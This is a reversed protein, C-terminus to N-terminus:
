VKKITQTPHIIYNWEGHFEAREINLTALADDTVKKGTEYLREDLHVTIHLGTTTTTHAILQVIEERSQLPRGRWNKAIQGFMRHEIKNWKSTGPPYHCVHLSLGFENAFTQLEYKWLRVRSGNSGGGDATILLAPVSAYLWCALSKWWCRLSNVAFEATDSSGGLNVFGAHHQLDYIGYPVAKGLNKDVFDYVNVEPAHGSPSYERGGNTFNGIKEKKKADVSIIPWGQGQFVQIHQQIYEFQADRDPHQRGEKTKRPAQLSYKM